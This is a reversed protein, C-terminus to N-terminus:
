GTHRQPLCDGPDVEPVALFAPLRTFEIHIAPEENRSGFEGALWIGSYATLGINSPGNADIAAQVEGM